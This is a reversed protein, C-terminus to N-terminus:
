KNKNPIRNLHQDLRKSLEDLAIMDDDGLENQRTINIHNITSQLAAIALCDQMTFSEGFVKQYKGVSANVEREALRYIEEKDSDITMQYSKGGVKLSIKQKAMTLEVRSQHTISHM